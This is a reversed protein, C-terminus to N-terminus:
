VIQKQAKFQKFAPHQFAAMAVSGKKSQRKGSIIIDPAEMILTELSLHGSGSIGLQNALNTFGGAELLTNALTNGGTTYGNERYFVAVPIKKPQLALVKSLRQNFSSILQEGREEEGVARAVTMINRRIDDFSTAIPLEVINFGLRKLIFVAPRSTFTGALILDPKMLLINEALGYNQKLGIAEKFMASSSEKAALYSVSAIHKREALLMLLQDTCLNISVIRQPKALATHSSLIFLGTVVFMGSFCYRIWKLIYAPM